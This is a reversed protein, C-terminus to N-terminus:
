LEKMRKMIELGLLYERETPRKVVPRQIVTFPNIAPCLIMIVIIIVTLLIIGAFKLLGPWMIILLAIELALLLAYGSYATGCETDYIRAKKLAEMTCEGDSTLHSVVAHECGHMRCFSDHMDEDLYVGENAAAIILLPIFSLLCFALIGLGARFELFIFGAVIVTLYLLFLKAMRRGTHGGKVGLQKEQENRFAKMEELTGTEFFMEENIYYGYVSNKGKIDTNYVVIGWCGSSGGYM